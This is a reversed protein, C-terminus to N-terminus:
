GKAESESHSRTKDVEDLVSEIITIAEGSVTPCFERLEKAAVNLANIMKKNREMFIKDIAHCARYIMASRELPPVGEIGFLKRAIAEHLRDTGVIPHKM